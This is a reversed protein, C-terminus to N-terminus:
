GRWRRTPTGMSSPWPLFINESRARRLHHRVAPARLTAARSQLWLGAHCLRPSSLSTLALYYPLFHSSSSSSLLSPFQM